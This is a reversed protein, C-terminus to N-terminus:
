YPQCSLQANAHGVGDGQSSQGPFGLDRYPIDFEVSYDNKRATNEVKRCFEKFAENLKRGCNDSGRSM